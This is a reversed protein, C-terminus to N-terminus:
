YRIVGPPTIPVVSVRCWTSARRKPLNHIVRGRGLGHPGVNGTVAMPIAKSSVEQGTLREAERLPATKEARLDTGPCIPPVQKAALIPQASFERPVGGPRGAKVTITREYNSMRVFVRAGGPRETPERSSWPIARSEGEAATKIQM